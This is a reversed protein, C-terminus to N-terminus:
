EEPINLSVEWNEKIREFDYTNNHRHLVTVGQKYRDVLDALCSDPINRVEEFQLDMSIFNFWVRTNLDPKKMEGSVYGTYHFLDGLAKRMKPSIKYLVLKAKNGTYYSMLDVDDSGNVSSAQRRLQEQKAELNQESQAVTNVTNIVQTATATALTVGAAIGVGGTVASSAFSVISGVGSLVTGIISTAEQRNKTKVDYNYGTRLYNLYQVNYIVEENNRAVPLINNYDQGELGECVYQPFEFLFRSNLTSTMKFNVSFVNFNFEKSTMKELQFVFGFSDYVFKPQYYDSHFLKSEFFDDRLDSTTKGTLDITDLPSFIDSVFNLDNLFKTNLNKLKALVETNDLEFEGNGLKGSKFEVPCYPLSIIKILRSDTRDVSDIGLITVENHDIIDVEETDANNKFSFESWSSDITASTNKYIFSAGNIEVTDCPITVPIINDFIKIQSKDIFVLLDIHLKANDIYIMCALSYCHLQYILDSAKFSVTKNDGTYTFTFNGDNAFIIYRIGEALSTDLSFTSTLGTVTLPTEACLFCNLPNNLSEDPENENKYILYWTHSEAEDIIEQKDEKYLIPTLGESYLDIKRYVPGLSTASVKIDATMDDPDQGYTGVRLTIILEQTYNDYFDSESIVEYSPNTIEVSVEYGLFRPLKITFVVDYRAYSVETFGTLNNPNLEGIFDEPIIRTFRDKHERNVLTRNSIRYNNRTKISPSIPDPDDRFTNITDMKLVLSICQSSIWTKKLVFYYVPLSDESNQIAMYNINNSYKFFDLAQQSNSLDIKVNLALEHKIYQPSDKATDGTLVTRACDSLYDDINDIKFNNEPLIKTNSFIVWRNM